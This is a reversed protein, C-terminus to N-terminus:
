VAARVHRREIPHRSISVIDPTGRSRTGRLRLAEVRLLGLVACSTALSPPRPSIPTKRSGAAMPRRGRGQVCDRGGDPDWTPWAAGPLRAPRASEVRAPARAVAAARRDALARGAPRRQVLATGVVCLAAHEARVLAADGRAGLAPAPLLRHVPLRPAVLSDVFTAAAQEPLHEGVELSIALDFRRGIRFPRALDAARFKERPIELEAEDVYNGDVGLVDGVLCVSRSIAFLLLTPNSVV